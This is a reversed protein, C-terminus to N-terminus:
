QSLKNHIMANNFVMIRAKLAIELRNKIAISDKMLNHRLLTDTQYNYLALTTENPEDYQLVYQQDIIQYINGAMNYTYSPTNTAWVGKGFSTFKGKYHLMQLISIAVDTQQVINTYHGINTTDNPTFFFLPISYIGVKNHKTLQPSRSFHDAVFVFLTNNYWTNNQIQRFFQRLVEDYYAVAKSADIQGSPITDLAATPLLDFPFHTSVNFLSVFFPPELQNIYQAAFSFFCHDYIGYGGDYCTNDFDERGIYNDLGYLRATRRFSFGTDNGGTLFATTYGAKKLLNGISYHKNAAYVSAPYEQTTLHPISGLIASIGQVSTLGNAFANDFVISHQRISDLFPTSPRKTLHEDLYEQSMSEIIFVVVNKRDFPLSDGLSYYIPYQQEAEQAPLYHKEALLTKPRFFAHLLTFPTNNVIPLHATDAYYAAMAPSFALTDTGRFGIYCLPLAILAFLLTQIKKHPLNDKQKKYQEFFTYAWYIFYAFLLLIAIFYTYRWLAHLLLANHQWVLMWDNPVLRHMNLKFFIMDGLIPLLLGINVFLFLWKLGKSYWKTSAFFPQLLSLAIFPLNYAIIAAIDFRFGGWAMLLVQPTDIDMFTDRNYSYFLCRCIAYLLLLAALNGCLALTYHLSKYKTLRNM